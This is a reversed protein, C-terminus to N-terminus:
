CSMSNRMTFYPVSSIMSGSFGFKKMLSGNEKQVFVSKLWHARSGLRIQYDSRNCDKADREYMMCDIEHLLLGNALLSEALVGGIIIVKFSSM